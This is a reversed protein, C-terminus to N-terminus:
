FSVAAFAFFSNNDSADRGFGDYNSGAGNFQFYGTYQIGLKLNAYPAGWSSEKGFPVWDAQLIYGSTDPRGSRSGGDEEPGYLVQDRTGWSHFLGGTLGFTNNRYWSLNGSMSNLSHKRREADGAAFDFDRTQNEHLFAINASIINKRNGLYQYTADLGWDFYKNTPGPQREPHIATRMAVLGFSAAGKGFDKQYALRLYPAVGSIRGAEDEVGITNLLGHSLSRYGAVEAYISNDFWLYTSLGAVQGELGEALLPMGIREPVLEPAEHPLSWAPLTDFVDQSGPNNNVGFGWIMDKNGAKLPLAYRVDFHDLMTAHEIGSHEVAIFAGARPAIRGAVFAVIEQVAANDNRSFGEPKEALDKATHTYSLLASGSLPVVTKGDSYGGLKFARGHPTLAPGYAGIHCSTCPEGTQRSYSPVALAASATAAGLIGGAAFVFIGRM